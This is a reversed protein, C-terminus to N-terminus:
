PEKPLDFDLCETAHMAYGERGRLLLVRVPRPGERRRMSEHAGARISGRAGISRSKAEKRSRECSSTHPAVLQRCKQAGLNSAILLRSPELREICPMALPERSEETFSRRSSADGNEPRAIREVEVAISEAVLEVFDVEDVDVRGCELARAGPQGRRMHGRLQSKVRRQVDRPREQRRRHLGAHPPEFRRAADEFRLTHEAVDFAMELSCALQDEAFQRPEVHDQGVADQGLREAREVLLLKMTAATARALGELACTDRRRVDIREAKRPRRLVGIAGRPLSSKSVRTAFPRRTPCYNSGSPSLRVARRSPSPLSYRQERLTARPLNRGKESSRCGAPRHAPIPTERHKRRM